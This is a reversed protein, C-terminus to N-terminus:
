FTALLQLSDLELLYRRLGTLTALLTDDVRALKNKSLNLIRLNPLDLVRDGLVDGILKNDSLDLEVLSRLDSLANRCVCCLSM